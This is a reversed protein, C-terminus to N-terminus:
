GPGPLFEDPNLLFEVFLLLGFLVATYAGVLGLAVWVSTRGRHALARVLTAGELGEAKARDIERRAHALYWSNGFLGCVLAFAMSTAFAISNPTEPYGLVVLFLLEELITELIVVAYFIMAVRYMKRYGVWIGAFLFAAWNFGMSQKGQAAGRWRQLYYSARPGFFAILESQTPEGPAVAERPAAIPSAYPNSSVVPNLANM